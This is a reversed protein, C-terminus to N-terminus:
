LPVSRSNSVHLPVVALGGLIYSFACFVSLYSPLSAAGDDAKSTSILTPFIHLGCGCFVLGLFHGFSCLYALEDRSVAFGGVTGGASESGM